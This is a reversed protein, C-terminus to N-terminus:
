RKEGKNQKLRYVMVIIIFLLWLFFILFFKLLKFDNKYEDVEESLAIYSGDISEDVYAEPIEDNKEDKHIKETVEENEEAPIELIYGQEEKLTIEDLLFSDTVLFSSLGAKLLTNQVKLAEDKSSFPGLFVKYMKDIELINSTFNLDDLLVERKEANEYTSFAGVQILYSEEAFVYFTTFLMGWILLIISLIKRM